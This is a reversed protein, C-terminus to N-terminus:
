RYPLSDLPRGQEIEAQLRRADAQRPDIKLSERLVELAEESRGNIHLSYALGNYLLAVRMGLGEAERVLRRAEEVDHRMGHAVILNTRSEVNRPEKELARGLVAVADDLRGEQLDLSGLNAMAGVLDPALELTKEFELRAGRLDGKRRLVLGMWNCHMASRPNRLLAAQLLPQLEASRGQGDLLAFLEQMAAVSAADIVLARRLAAEADRPRELASYLVALAVRLGLERPGGTGHGPELDRLYALGDAPRGMRVFLEAVKLLAPLDDDKELRVAAQIYALAQDLNGRAEELLSMGSLAQISKPDLRLAKQFEAEAQDLHRKALYVSGLNTHYLLTPIGAQSGGSTPAPPGGGKPPAGGGPGPAGGGGGVYGLGRLQEVMEEEAADGGTAAGEGDVAGGGAASASAVRGPSVPAQLVEYSPVKVVPHASVFDDAMAAEIVKGPMDEPVPLGLLYLLSPAIDYLTVTPIDGPKILPGHAIFVGALDHWLGPRGEIFPKVDRPRRSGSSFGHDSMVIVTRNGAKRLIEGLIADQYRYFEPVADKFRRYDGETCLATRPPACHAFRHNVEDVGQFYVAVLRAKGDDGGDRELLDLAIRRYTETSALVRTLVNISEDIESVGARRAASARAQRFEGPTVHAFRAVQDYTVAATTVRMAEIASAYDPPFVASQKQRPASLDFTSYAVRDSVLHGRITEAPWTAWWAIIDSSLGAETLINWIAKTKRFTSDIPVQRGTRPDVVLFDNIGHRDPAKGTAVTTWLLPSLTPVSSRLRARAGERKLRALNPLSGEAIMPDILDWDAGDIGFLLIRAGTEVRRGFIAQREFSALVEPPAVPNGLSFDIQPGLRDELVERVAAELSDNAAGSALDYTGTAAAGKRLPEEVLARLAAPAGGAGGDRHLSLLAQPDPRARVSYPLDISSGEKSAAGLTAQVSVAGGPYRRASQLLPMRLSWGHARLDPTGGGRWSVITVDGERVHLISGAAAAAVGAVVIALGGARKLTM